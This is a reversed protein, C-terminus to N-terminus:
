VTRRLAGCTIFSPSAKRAIRVCSSPASPLTCGAVDAAREAAAVYPAAPATPEAVATARPPGPATAHTHSKVRRSIGSRMPSAASARVAGTPRAPSVVPESAPRRMFSAAPPGRAM